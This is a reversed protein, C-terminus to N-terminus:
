KKNLNKIKKARLYREMVKTVKGDNDYRNKLDNIDKVSHYDQEGRLWDIKGSSPFNKVDIQGEYEDGNFIFVDYVKFERDHELNNMAKLFALEEINKITFIDQGEIYDDGVAIINREKIMKFTVNKVNLEKGFLLFSSSSSNSVFGVRIKM